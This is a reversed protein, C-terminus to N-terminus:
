AGLLLFFFYSSNKLQSQEPHCSTFFLGKHAPTPPPRSQGPFHHYFEPCSTILHCLPPFGDDNTHDILVPQAEAPKHWSEGSVCFSGSHLDPKLLWGWALLYFIVGPPSMVWGKSEKLWTGPPHVPHCSLAFLGVLHVSLGWKHCSLFPNILVFLVSVVALTHQAGETHWVHHQSRYM